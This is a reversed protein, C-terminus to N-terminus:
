FGVQDFDPTTSIKHTDNKMSYKTLNPRWKRSDDCCVTGYQGYGWQHFGSIETLITIAKFDQEWSSNEPNQVGFCMLVVPLLLFSWFHPLNLTTALYNNKSSM